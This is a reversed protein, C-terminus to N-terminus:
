NNINELTFVLIDKIDDCNFKPHDYNAKSKKFFNKTLLFFVVIFPDFSLDEECLSSLLLLTLLYIRRVCGYTVLSWKIMKRM